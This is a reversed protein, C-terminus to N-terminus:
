HPANLIQRYPAVNAACLKYLFYGEAMYMVGVASIGIPSSGSIIGALMGVMLPKSGVFLAAAVGDCDEKSMGRALNFPAFASVRVNEVLNALARRFPIREQESIWISVPSPKLFEEAPVSFARKVALSVEVVRRGLSEIDLSM